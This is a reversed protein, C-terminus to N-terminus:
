KDIEERNAVVATGYATVEASELSISATSFRFGIVGNAGLSEADLKMRYLAEERAEALLQTYGTIEGGVIGKLSAGIDRGLNRARVTSGRALGLLKTIKMTPLADTTVIIFGSLRDAIQQKKKEQYPQSACNTCVEIKIPAGNEDTDWESNTNTQELEVIGCRQCFM